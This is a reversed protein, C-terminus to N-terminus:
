TSEEKASDQDGSSILGDNLKKPFKLPAHKGLFADIEEFVEELLDEGDRSQIYTELTKRILHVADLVTIPADIRGILASEKSSESDFLAIMNSISGKDDLICDIRAAGEIGEIRAVPHPEKLAFFGGAEGITLRVGSWYIVPLQSIFRESERFVSTRYTPFEPTASNPIFQFLLYSFLLGFIVLIVAIIIPTLSIVLISSRMLPFPLFLAGLYCAATLPLLRVDLNAIIQRYSHNYEKVMQSFEHFNVERLKLNWEVNRFQVRDKMKWALISLMPMLTLFLLSAWGFWEFPKEFLTVMQYQSVEFAMIAWIQLFLFIAIQHYIISKSIVPSEVM